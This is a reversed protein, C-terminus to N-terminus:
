KAWTVITSFKLPVSFNWGTGARADVCFETGGGGGLLIKDRNKGFLFNFIFFIMKITGM